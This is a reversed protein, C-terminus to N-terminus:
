SGGPYGSGNGGTDGFGYCGEVSCGLEVHLMRLRRSTATIYYYAPYITGFHPVYIGRDKLPARALTCGFIGNRVPLHGDLSPYLALNDLERRIDANNDYADNLKDWTSLESFLGVALDLDIANGAIRLNEFRTGHLIFSAQSKFDDNHKSTLRTVFKDCTVVDLINLNEISVTALTGYAKDRASYSGVVKSEAPGFSLYDLHQFREVRASGFGPGIPASISAQIPISDAVPLSIHGSAAVAEAHYLFNNPM